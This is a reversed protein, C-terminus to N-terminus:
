YNHYSRPPTWNPRYDYSDNVYDSSRSASGVSIHSRLETPLLACFTGPLCPNLFHSLKNKIIFFASSNRDDLLVEFGDIENELDSRLASLSDRSGRVGAPRMSARNAKPM